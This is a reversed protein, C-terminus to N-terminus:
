SYANKKEQKFLFVNIIFCQLEYTPDHGLMENTQHNQQAQCSLRRNGGATMGACAPIWLNLTAAIKFCEQLILSQIGAQAPIVARQTSNSSNDSLGDSFLLDSVQIRCGRKASIDSELIRGVSSQYHGSLGDSFSM